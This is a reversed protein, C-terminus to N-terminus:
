TSVSVMSRENSRMKVWDFSPTSATTVDFSFMSVKSSTAGANGAETRFCTSDTSPTAAASPEIPSWCTEIM